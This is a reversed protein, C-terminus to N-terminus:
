TQLPGLTPLIFREFAEATWPLAPKFFHEYITWAYQRIEFQADPAMRLRLFHMLNHADVKAIFQTYLNHPLFLRAMERAVGSELAQNYLALAQESCSQLATTLKAAETADLEGASAQKNDTSQLRWITPVYFDIHESTYRRSLENYSFTRHRMWQRAVIIPCKVRFKFEVMEFPTTHHHQVLYFLLKRDRETGKNEGLFSVRAANVIALDDGMLDQLEIWGKDLVTVRRGLLSEHDSPQDAM